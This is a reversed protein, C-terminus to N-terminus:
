KLKTEIAADAHVSLASGNDINSAHMTRTWSHTTSAQEVRVVVTWWHSCPSTRLVVVHGSSRSAFSDAHKTM